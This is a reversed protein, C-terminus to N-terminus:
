QGIFTCLKRSRNNVVDNMIISSSAHMDLLTFDVGNITNLNAIKLKLLEEEIGSLADEVNLDLDKVLMQYSRVTKESNEDIYEGCFTKLYRCDRVNSIEQIYHVYTFCNPLSVGIMLNKVGHNDFYGFPSDAGFSSKNSMNCLFDQDKGWVAFSYIPHKTRRFDKRKLALNSLSGTESPTIYYDFLKGSCFGWNYTPFIL